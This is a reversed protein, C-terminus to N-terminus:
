LLATQKKRSERCVEIAKLATLRIIPGLAPNSRVEDEIDDLDKLGKSERIRSQYSILAPLGGRRESPSRGDLFDPPTKIDSM